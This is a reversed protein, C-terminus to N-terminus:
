KVYRVLLAPLREKIRHLECGAQHVVAYSVYNVHLKDVVKKLLHGPFGCCTPHILRVSDVM